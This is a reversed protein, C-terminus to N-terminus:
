LMWGGRATMVAPYKAGSCLRDTFIVADNKGYRCCHTQCMAIPVRGGGIAFLVVVASDYFFLSFAAVRQISVSDRALYVLQCNRM